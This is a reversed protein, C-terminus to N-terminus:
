GVAPNLNFGSDEPPIHSPTVVIGDALGSSRGKNHGLIAHSVVPTPTYDGNEDIMTDVGNAALVELATALAPISLAHRNIGVFLPGTVSHAVRHLCIAQTIALIHAENFALDLASGRHGSCGSVERAFGVWRDRPLTYGEPGVLRPLDVLRATDIPKGAYPSITETM